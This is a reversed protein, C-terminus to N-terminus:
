AALEAVKDNPKNAYEGVRYQWSGFNGKWASEIFILSPEYKEALGFWNDPRPQILNVDKNFCGTTFEDMISLVRPKNNDPPDPWGLISIEQKLNSQLNDKPAPAPDAKPELITWPVAPIGLFGSGLIRYSIVLQKHQAHTQFELSFSNDFITLKHDAIRGDLDYEMLWIQVSGQVELQGAFVYRTDPELAVLGDTPPKDFAATRRSSLYASHGEPLAFTVRDQRAKVYKPKNVTFPTFEERGDPLKLLVSFAEPNRTPRIRKSLGHIALRGLRYSLAVTNMGPKTVAQVLAQGLQHSVTKTQNQLRHRVRHYNLAARDRAQSREQLKAILSKIQKDKSSSIQQQVEKYKREKLLQAKAEEKEKLALGLQQEKDQLKQESSVLMKELDNKEKLAQYLQQETNQLNQKSSTVFEEIESKERIVQDLQNETDQLKQELNQVKQESQTHNDFLKILESHKKTFDKRQLRLERHILDSQEAATLLMNTNKQVHFSDFNTYIEDPNPRKKFIYFDAFSTSTNLTTNFPYRNPVADVLKWSPFRQTIDKLFNRFRVYESRENVGHSYFEESNSYIIVYYRGLSFLHTLYEEYIHDDSLHYIVDLSISIDSVYQDPHFNDPQYYFFTKSTDGQFIKKCKEISTQSIDLGIYKPYENLGLQAGDGCGLETVSYINNEAIFENLFNAKFLALRDYSGSGSDKGQAYRDEWYSAVDFYKKHGKDLSMFEYTPTRNFVKGTPIYGLGTLVDCVEKYKDDNHVKAFILPKCRRIFNRGGRLVATNFGEFDIRIVCANHVHDLVGDMTELEIAEEIDQFLYQESGIVDSLGFNLLDCKGEPVNKQISDHAITFFAKLPEFAYVKQSKCFLSFYIAHNGIHSGVDIYVGGIRLSRIYELLEVEYFTGSHYCQKNEESLDDPFDIQQNHYTFKM